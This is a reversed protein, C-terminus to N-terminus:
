HGYSGVTAKRRYKYEQMSGRNVDVCSHSEIFMCTMLELIFHENHQFVPSLPPRCRRDEHCRRRGPGEVAVGSDGGSRKGVCPCAPPFASALHIDKPLVLYQLVKYIRDFGVAAARATEITPQFFWEGQQQHLLRTTGWASTRHEITDQAIHDATIVTYGCSGMDGNEPTTLFEIIGKTAELYQERKQVNMFKGIGIM